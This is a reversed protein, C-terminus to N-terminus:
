KQELEGSIVVASEGRSLWQSTYVTTSYLPNPLLFWISALLHQFHGLRVSRCHCLHVLSVFRSIRNRLVVLTMTVVLFLCLVVFWLGFWSGHFCDWVRVWACVRVYVRDLTCVQFCGCCIPYSSLRSCLRSCLRSSSSLYRMFVFAFSRFYGTVAVFDSSPPAFHHPSSSHHYHHQM